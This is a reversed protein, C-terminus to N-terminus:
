ESPTPWFSQIPNLFDKNRDSAQQLELRQRDSLTERRQGNEAPPPTSVEPPSDDLDAASSVARATPHASESRARKVASRLKDDQHNYKM